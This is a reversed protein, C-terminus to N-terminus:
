IKNVTKPKIMKKRSGLNALFSARKLLPWILILIIMESQLYLEQCVRYIERYLPIGFIVLFTQDYCSFLIENWKLKSCLLCSFFLLVFPKVTRSKVFNKKKKREGRQFGCFHHHCVFLRVRSLSNSFFHWDFNKLIEVWFSKM